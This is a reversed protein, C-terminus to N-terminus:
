KRTKVPLLQRFANYAELQSCPELSNSAIHVFANLLAWSTGLGFEKSAPKRFEKDARGIGAWGLLRRRGAKLLIESAQDRGIQYRRLRRIVETILRAKKAFNSLTTSIEKELIFTHDHRRNLIFSDTCIGNKEAIGVYVTLAKRRSNSNTFGLSLKAGPPTKVEKTGVFVFAGTLDADNRTTTYFEKEIGWGKQIIKEIFCDILDSHKIPKWRSGAADPTVPNIKRLDELTILKKNITIM